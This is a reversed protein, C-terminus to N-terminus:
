QRLFLERAVDSYHCQPKKANENRKYNEGWFQLDLLQLLRYRARITQRSKQQAKQHPRRVPMCQSEDYRCGIKPWVTVMEANCAPFAAAAGGLENFVSCWALLREYM